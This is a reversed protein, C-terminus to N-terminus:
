DEKYHIGCETKTQNIWRGSRPDNKNSSKHTCHTCGISLYGEKVLPHKPLNNTKFYESVQKQEFNALPNVVIKGNNFEFPQLDLREGGQYSKRGSIWAAYGKLFNNLPKVKRLNCCKEVDSEWLKNKPDDKQLDPKDPFIELFNELKLIELLKNKYDLTQNFLFNTNLLIIPFNKNIQSIMHLIIASEAGFSSVYVIKNKFVNLSERIIKQPSLKNFKKNLEKVKNQDFNM